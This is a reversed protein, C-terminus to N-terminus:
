CLGFPGTHIFSWSCSPLFSKVAAAEIVIIFKVKFKVFQKIHIFIYNIYKHM